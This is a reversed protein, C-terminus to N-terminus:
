TRGDPEREKEVGLQGDALWAIRSFQFGVPHSILDHPHRFRGHLPL